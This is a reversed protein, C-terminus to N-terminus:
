VGAAANGGAGEWKAIAAQTKTAVEHASTIKGFADVFQGLPDMLYFFISDFSDSSMGNGFSFVLYSHDVLYDEGPKVSPPSSFYVRYSKCAQKVSEYDGTLGIM